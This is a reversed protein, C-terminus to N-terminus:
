YVAAALFCVKGSWLLFSFLMSPLCSNPSELKSSYSSAASINSSSSWSNASEADISLKVTPPPFCLLALAECIYLWTTKFVTIRAGSQSKLSSASIISFSVIAFGVFLFILVSGEGLFCSYGVYNRTLPSM